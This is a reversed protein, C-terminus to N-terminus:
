FKFSSYFSFVGFWLFRFSVFRSNMSFPFIDMQTIFSVFFFFLQQRCKFCFNLAYILNFHYILSYTQFSFPCKPLHLLRMGHSSSSSSPSVPLLTVAIARSSTAWILITKKKRGELKRTVKISYCYAQELNLNKSWKSNPPKIQFIRWNLALM